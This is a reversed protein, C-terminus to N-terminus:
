PADSLVSFGAQRFHHDNTLVHRIGQAAMLEMSMCDVLAYEKDPRREYLNLGSLFLERGAPFVQIGRMARRVITTARQRMNAGSAGFYALMEMFVGDHAVFTEGALSRELRLAAPHGHDFPDALAILYWTDVFYRTM